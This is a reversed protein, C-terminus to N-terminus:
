HGKDLNDRQQNRELIDKKMAGHLDLNFLMKAKNWEDMKKCEDRHRLCQGPAQLLLTIQLVLM